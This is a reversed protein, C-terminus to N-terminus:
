ESDRYNIDYIEAHDLVDVHLAGVPTALELERAPESDRAASRARFRVFDMAFQGSSPRDGADTVKHRSCGLKHERTMSSGPWGGPFV